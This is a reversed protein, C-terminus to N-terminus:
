QKKYQLYTHKKMSKNSIYHWKTMKMFVQGIYTTLNNKNNNNNYNNYNNNNNNNNVVMAIWNGKM